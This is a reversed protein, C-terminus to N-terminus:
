VIRNQEAKRGIVRSSKFGDLNRLILVFDDVLPKISEVRQLRKIWRSAM